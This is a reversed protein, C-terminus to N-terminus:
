QVDMLILDYAGVRAAELAEQGNGVTEVAYGAEELITTALLANIENDEALLVRAGAPAGTSPSASSAADDSPAAPAKATDSAAEVLESLCDILAQHRVPKTLYADFGVGRAHESPAPAGISSALILRPQRLLGNARIKEAVADGSMGPMMHDMLVMDFPAGTADATVIAALAAPGDCAETVVAEEAELQRAFISRNIEIDDVVLIKQGKLGLRARPRPEVAKDAHSLDLEIWFVSGGGERDDVGITGGMLEVLQRCISLGLGTGGFKRTISGDAQQFKQFLRPKAESPVGVGTDHVELRLPTSRDGAAGARVEVAVYGTDTFKIANSLLNLVVQRLRTPDGRFGRRAGAGVFSALELGKEAAKPSLLEVVDEVVQRLTFDISELEVKGAELKSIDLIDNIIGLLCEASVRVADAYKRQEPTLQTRLMLANMGMIGNMPTRIEHSMNALFESKARNATEAEELARSRAEDAMKRRTINQLAGVLRTPRGAEDLILESTSSAWVLKEDARRIRYEVNYPISPDAEHAAWADRVGEVDDPHISEYIDAELDEFTKPQEFFTDEAGFKYLTRRRYDMEWVHVDAINAALNLRQESRKSEELAEVLRTVDQCAIALGAVKGAENRWPRLELQLWARAGGPLKVSIREPEAAEGGPRERWDDRALAESQPALERVSRGLAEGRELGFAALWRPTAEIVKLDADTVCLAIPAQAAFRALPSRDEATKTKRAATRRVM